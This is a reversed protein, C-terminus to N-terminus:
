EKQDSILRKGMSIVLDERYGIAEYFKAIDTNESRIQLNIKPCGLALLAAEGHFMMQAGYGQRRHAPAIALYNVWGRHGDYGFMASAVIENECSGVFFLESQCSAKRDIDLHPDNWPRTLGCDQWLSVVADADTTSFPRITIPTIPKM